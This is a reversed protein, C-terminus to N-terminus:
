LSGFATTTPTEAIATQIISHPRRSGFAGNFDASVAPNHAM